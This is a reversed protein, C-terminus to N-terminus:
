APAPFLVNVAAPILLNTTVLSTVGPHQRLEWRSVATENQTRLESSIRNDDHATSGPLTTANRTHPLPLDSDSDM